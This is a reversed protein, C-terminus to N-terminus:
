CDGMVAVCLLLVLLWFAITGFVVSATLKDLKDLEDPM